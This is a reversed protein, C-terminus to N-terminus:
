SVAGEVGACFEGVKAVFHDLSQSVEADNMLSTEGGPVGFDNRDLHVASVPLIALNRFRRPGVSAVLEEIARAFGTHSDDTARRAAEKASTEALDAEQRLRAAESALNASGPGATAANGAAAAKQRADEAAARAIQATQDASTPVFYDRAERLRDQFLDCMTVAVILWVSDKNQWGTGLVASLRRFNELENKKYENFVDELDIDPGHRARLTDVQVLRDGYKWPKNRGWCAVHISATTAGRPGFESRETQNRGYATQGPIVTLQIRKRGRATRQKFKYAETTTSRKPLLTQTASPDIKSLLANALVTKGAGPEGSVVIETDPWFPMLPWKRKVQSERSSDPQDASLHAAIEWQSLANAWLKKLKEEDVPLLCLEALLSLIARGSVRVAGYARWLERGM